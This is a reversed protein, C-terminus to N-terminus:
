EKVVAEIDMGRLIGLGGASDGYVAGFGVGM